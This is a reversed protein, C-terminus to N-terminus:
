DFKMVVDDAATWVHPGDHNSPLMCMEGSHRKKYPDSDVHLSLEYEIARDSTLGYTERLHELKSKWCHKM